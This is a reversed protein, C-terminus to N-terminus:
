ASQRMPWRVKAPDPHDARDPIRDAHGAIGGVSPPGLLIHETYPDPQRITEIDDRVPSEQM